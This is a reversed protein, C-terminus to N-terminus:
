LSHHALSAPNDLRKIKSDYILGGGEEEGDGEGPPPCLATEANKGRRETKISKRGM